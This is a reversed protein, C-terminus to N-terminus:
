MNALFENVISEEKETIGYMENVLSDIEINREETYEVLQQEVLSAIKKSLIGDEKPIPFMKLESIKFQPFLGRQMKDFKNIFWFTEIKSNLIGLVYYPNYKFENINMSNRDNIIDDEVLVASISYPPTSPIQRVLIRQGSFLDAKRMAALNEGYEIWEGSWDLEYRKVDEGQLYKTYQDGMPSFTHYIRDDKMKETQQPKGKGVEYAVIGSKVNSIDNITLHEEMKKLVPMNQPNGVLSLSFIPNGPYTARFSGGRRILNFWRFREKKLRMFRFKQVVKHNKKTSEM